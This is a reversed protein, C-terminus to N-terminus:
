SSIQKGEKAAVTTVAKLKAYPGCVWGIGSVLLGTFM